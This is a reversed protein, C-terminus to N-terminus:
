EIIADTSDEKPSGQSAVSVLAESNSNIAAQDEASQDEAPQSAANVKSASAHLKEFVAATHMHQIGNVTARIINIPNNSGFSKTYVDQIGAFDMIVRAPGGAVIGTGPNAPKIMVKSSGYHGIVEHPVTGKVIPITILSKQAQNVAKKISSAVENAKALAFGFQGKRNGIIVLAAFRFRRGGKTVKTVRNVTIVKEIFEKPVAPTRRHRRRRSRRDGHNDSHNARRSRDHGRAPAKAIADAQHVPAPQPKATDPSTVTRTQEENHM